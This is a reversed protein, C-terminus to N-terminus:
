RIVNLLNNVTQRAADIQQQTSARNLRVHEADALVAAATRDPKGDGNLDLPTTLPLAGNAVNLWAVLVDRDFLEANTGTVRSLIAFADTSSALAIPDGPGFVASTQDVIKLYCALDAASITSQGRVAYSNKWFGNPQFAHATAVIVVHVLDPKSTGGDDDVASLTASYACPAAYPHTVSSTFARPQM